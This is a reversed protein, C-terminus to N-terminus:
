KRECNWHRDVVTPLYPLLFKTSSTVAAAPLLSLVCASLSGRPEREKNKHVTRSERDLSHHCGHHASREVETLVILVIGWLYVSWGPRFVGESLNEEWTTISQTSSVLSAAMHGM